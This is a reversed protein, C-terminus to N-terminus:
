LPPWPISPWDGSPVPHTGSTLLDVTRQRLAHLEARTILTLLESEIPGEDLAAVLQTLRHTDQPTLPEGAWGWLVTRLKPEAHLSVGHDIGWVRDDHVLIHGGKRDSNNLVADLVAMSRLRPDDPHSVVLPAGGEGEGSLVVIHGQPVEEPPTVTVPTRSQETLRGVWRQVSGPGLPGDRLLTEPILDFGGLSDIRSAAVERAALSGDPFDWLPREGSIPKYAVTVPELDARRIQAVTVINSASPHRGLVVLDGEHLTAAPSM